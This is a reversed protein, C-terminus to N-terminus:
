AKAGIHEDLWEVDKRQSIAINMHNTQKWQLGLREATECFMQRIDPSMNGFFYRPYNKGKVINQSRSGDSHYLGRFFELPYAEVIRQQWEALEIKRNHKHGEGHQPFYEHWKKHYCNVWDCGQKHIINVSHQPLMAQMTAMCRHIIQPYKVDLAICLRLVNKPAKAIHGDGLYLGLLYAYNEYLHHHLQPNFEGRLMTLTDPEDEWPYQEDFNAVTGYRVIFRNVTSKPICTRREVERQNRCDEWEILIQRLEDRTRLVYNRM